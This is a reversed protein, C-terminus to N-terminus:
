GDGPTFGGVAPPAAGAAPVITRVVSPVVMFQQFMDMVWKLDGLRLNGLRDRVKDLGVMREVQSPVKERYECLRRPDADFIIEESFRRLALLDEVTEVTYRTGKSLEKLAVRITETPDSKTMEVEAHGNGNTPSEPSVADGHDVLAYLGAPIPPLASVRGIDELPPTQQLANVQATLKANEDELAEIKWRVADLEETSRRISANYMEAAKEMERMRTVVDGIVGTVAGRQEIDELTTEPPLNAAELLETFLGRVVTAQHDIDIKAEVLVGREAELNERDQRLKEEARLVYSRKAEASRKMARAKGMEAAAENRDRQAEQYLRDRSLEFGTLRTHLENFESRLTELQTTLASRETGLPPMEAEFEEIRTQTDASAPDSDAVQQEFQAQLEARLGELETLRNDIQMLRPEHISLAQYVEALRKTAAQISSLERQAGELEQQVDDRERRADNRERKLVEHSTGIQTFVSHISDSLSAQQSYTHGSKTACALLAKAASELREYYARGEAKAANVEGGLRRMTEANSSITGVYKAALEKEATVKSREIEVTAEHEERLRAIAADHEERLRRIRSEVAEDYESRPADLENRLAVVEAKHSRQLRSIHVIGALCICLLLLAFAWAIQATGESEAPAAVPAARPPTVSATDLSTKSPMVVPASADTKLEIAVKGHAAKANATLCESTPKKFCEDQVRLRDLKEFTTERHKFPVWLRDAAGMILIITMRKTPDKCGSLDERWVRNPSRNRDYDPKGEKSICAPIVHGKNAEYIKQWTLPEGQPNEDTATSARYDADFHRVVTDVSLGSGIQLRVGDSTAEGIQIWSGRPPAEASAIQSQLLIGIGFFIAAVVRLLVSVARISGSSLPKKQDTM